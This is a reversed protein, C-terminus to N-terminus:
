SRCIVPLGYVVPAAGTLYRLKCENRSSAVAQAITLRPVGSGIGAGTRGRASTALAAGDGLGFDRLVKDSLRDIDKDTVDWLNAM